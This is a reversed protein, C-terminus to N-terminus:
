NVRALRRERFNPISSNVFITHEKQLECKGKKSLLYRDDLNFCMVMNEGEATILIIYSFCIEPIFRTCIDFSFVNLTKSRLNTCTQSTSIYICSFYIINRNPIKDYTYFPMSTDRRICWEGRKGQWTNEWVKETKWTALEQRLRLFYAIAGLSVYSLLTQDKFEEGLRALLFGDPRILIRYERSSVRPTRRLSRVLEQDLSEISVRFHSPLISHLSYLGWIFLYIISRM